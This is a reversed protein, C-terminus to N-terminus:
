PMLPKWLAVLNIHLTEFQEVSFYVNGINHYANGEGERYGIEKAIKLQKEHCEIAKQFDGLSQYSKGLNGYAEGEGFRGGIEKAIKM